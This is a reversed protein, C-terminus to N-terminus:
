LTRAAQYSLNKQLIKGQLNALSFASFITKNTNLAIYAIGLWSNGLLHM